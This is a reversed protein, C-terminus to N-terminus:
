RAVKSLVTFLNGKYSSLHPVMSIYVIIMMHRSTFFFYKEDQLEDYLGMEANITNNIVNKM